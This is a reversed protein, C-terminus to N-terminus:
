KKKLTLTSFENTLSTSIVHNVENKMMFFLEDNSFFATCHLCQRDSIKRNDHYTTISNKKETIVADLNM